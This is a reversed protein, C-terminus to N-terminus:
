QSIPMATVITTTSHWLPQGIPLDRVPERRIMQVGVQEEQETGAPLDTTWNKLRDPLSQEGADASALVTRQDGRQDWAKRLRSPLVNAKEDLLVVLDGTTNELCVELTKEHDQRESQRLLRLQPFHRTLDCAVEETSDTSGNDLILVEFQATLDSLVELLDAVRESLEAANNHVPLVVSLTDLTKTV